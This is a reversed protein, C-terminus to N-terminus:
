ERREGIRHGDRELVRAEEVLRLAQELGLLLAGRLQRDDGAHLLREGGLEVHLADVIGDAVLDALDEILRVQADADVIRLGTQDVVGVDIFVAFPDGDLGTEKPLHSKCSVDNSRAFRDDDVFIGLVLRFLVATVGQGARQVFLRGKIHRQDDPVLGAPQDVEDVHLALVSVAVGVDAEELREGVAHAHRQFVCPQEVLRL